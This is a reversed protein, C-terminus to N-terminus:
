KDWYNDGGATPLSSLKAKMKERLAADAQRAAEGSKAAAVQDATGEIVNGEDDVHVKKGRAEWYRKLADDVEKAM